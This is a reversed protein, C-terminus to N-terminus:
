DIYGLARLRDRLEESLQSDPAEIHQTKIKPLVTKLKSAFAKTVTTEKDVLNIQENPDRDLNYLEHKAKEEDLIYKWRATRLSVHKADKEPTADSLVYDPLNDGYGKEILPILSNGQFQDGDLRLNLTDIITPLIDMLGVPHSIVKSERIDPFKIILPVRILEDYLLRPHSFM